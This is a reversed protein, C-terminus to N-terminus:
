PTEYQAGQPNSSTHKRGTAPFSTYVLRPARVRGTSLSVAQGMHLMDRKGVRKLPLYSGTHFTGVVLAKGQCPAKATNTPRPTACDSVGKWNVDRNM